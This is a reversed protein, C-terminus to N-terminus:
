FYLGLLGGERLYCASVGDQPGVAGRGCGSESFHSGRGHELCVVAGLVVPGKM